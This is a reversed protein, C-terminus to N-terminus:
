DAAGGELDELPRGVDAAAPYTPETLDWDGKQECQTYDALLLDRLPESTAKRNRMDIRDVDPCWPNHIKKSSTNLVYFGAYEHGPAEDPLEDRCDYVVEGGHVALLVRGPDTDNLLVAWVEGADDPIGALHAQVDATLRALQAAADDLEDWAGDLRNALRHATGSAPLVEYRYAGVTLVVDSLSSGRPACSRFVASLETYLDTVQSRETTTSTAVYDAPATMITGPADRYACGALLLLVIILLILRKM